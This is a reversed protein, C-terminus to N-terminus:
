QLKIPLAALKYSTVVSLRCIHTRTGGTTGSLLKVNLFGQKIIGYMNISIQSSTM